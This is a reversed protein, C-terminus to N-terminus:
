YLPPRHSPLLAGLLASPRVEPLTAMAAGTAIVIADYAGSQKLADLSQVRETHLTV